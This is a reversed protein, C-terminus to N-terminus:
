GGAVDRVSPSRTAVQTALVSVIRVDSTRTAAFPLRSLGPRHQIMLSDMTSNPSGPGPLNSPPAALTVAAVGAGVVGLAGLVAGALGVRRRRATSWSEPRPAPRLVAQVHPAPRRGSPRLSAASAVSRVSARSASTAASAVSAVLRVPAGIPVRGPPPQPRLDPLPRPRPSGPVHGERPPLPGAPGGMSLLRSVLDAGPEPGCLVSLRAKMLREAEVVDRCERCGALHGHARETAEISLQGDVLATVKDGLHSM